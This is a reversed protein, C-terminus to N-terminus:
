WSVNLAIRAWKNTGADDILIYLYSADYNFDGVTDTVAVDNFATPVKGVKRGKMFRADLNKFDNVDQRREKVMYSVVKELDEKRRLSPYLKKTM